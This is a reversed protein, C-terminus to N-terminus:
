AFLRDVRGCQVNMVWHPPVNEVGLALVAGLMLLRQQEEKEEQSKHDGSVLVKISELLEKQKEETIM